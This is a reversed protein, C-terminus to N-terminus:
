QSGSFFDPEHGFDDKAVDHETPEDADEGIFESPPTLVRQFGDAIRIGGTVQEEQRKSRGESIEQSQLNASWRLGILRLM